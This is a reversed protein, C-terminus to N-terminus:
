CFLILILLPLINSNYYFLIITIRISDCFFFINRHLIGLICCLASSTFLLNPAREKKIRCFLVYNQMKLPRIGIYQIFRATYLVFSLILTGYAVALHSLSFYCFAFPSSIATLPKFSRVLQIKFFDHHQLVRLILSNLSSFVLLIAM